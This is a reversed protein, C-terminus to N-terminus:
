GGGADCACLGFEDVRSNCLPCAEAYVVDEPKKGYRKEHYTIVESAM